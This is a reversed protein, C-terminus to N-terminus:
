YTGYPNGYPGAQFPLLRGLQGAFGGIQQGLGGQGFAGGIAQGLPAGVQGLLNGFFGQPAFQAQQQELAQQAMLQQPDVGFPLLRGLQGAFGGIQQGLGANGALGGIAKGLPSGVQGLLNGFFGQPAFQAQQQQELAQQAMLQQPDVGFPLLRGLQGAFGGIQQGIGAHGALGGIAKGLPAGVQGLLNGFFGQPAFQAQQQEMAQQAMLQQPDVGFPLLRGLQGAFGGIQQGLGAHGALGGIAKGLPSGVQGLLNGFFGQPAFQAQQQELAQQAMLQQPDVGFPLLRGLQGAFGGIQQGLGAHGALGGIAKGLPSGVQGLLNGFFGQPAFQAQQQELAQQAMLQQPDVGFPLLRGFQGAFGGIQQGLGANGALGGIAKGLPAGVQGLLNGFFGQPVFQAQQQELAQQAMLQQPDVGFPLLGGLVGGATNGIQQGLKKNGFLGGLAGGGLGGAVSGLLGGFLGQPAFQGGAAPNQPTLAQALYPAYGGDAVAAYM